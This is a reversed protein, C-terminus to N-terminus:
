PLELPVLHKRRAAGLILGLALWSGGILFTIRDFGSWVFAVILLGLLPFLVYRFVQRHRHQKIYFYVFVTVNLLMFATLAGFNVLKLLAEEPITLALLVSLVAVLLTANVPTKWRPHVRALFGAGPLVRDRGMSYLIRSIASQAALANAIGAAIVNVLILAVYLAPGGVQRAIQFFGLKAGLTAYDPHVLAALYTEVMFIAGLLLLSLVTANGIAKCPERTEEALTSIADFGLFSLAAISTATAVFNWNLHQPQYFPAVSWGGAGRGRVFVFDIALAIFVGLAILEVVLLVFNARAQLRIGLINVATNFVVFALVWVFTPVGPMLGQLWNASFTYILAPILLYDALIMWGAIFGVYPNLGRQVYSYVSGAVPFAGSLQKYSLATFLMAVIGVLYVLPVMGFSARSVFGYVAWPAIPVMFIMGYVVLHRLELTRELEQRYGSGSKTGAIEATLSPQDEIKSPVSESKESHGSPTPEVM